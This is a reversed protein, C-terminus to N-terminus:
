RRQRAISSRLHIYHFPDVVDSGIHVEYHLHPGTSLGTNGIHGIVDGQQVRQGLRVRTSLLHAFRTYYGHRHRIIIYNGFDHNYNIAVIQGNATAVVPDGSRFTSIDIGRHIYYQGTFPNINQGFFMSIHGLGGQVPWISPIDALIESHSHLAAGVEAIPEAAAALHASLRRIDDIERSIGEPMERVDFFSDLDGRSPRSSLDSGLISFTGALADEFERAGRILLNTEERIQDLSAQLYRIHADRGALASSAYNYSSGYWFFAGLIGSLVLFFCVISLVTVHFNYVKKESHPVFVVTYRRTLFRGVAGLVRGVGRFAFSAAKKTKQVIGNEFRKYEHISAM